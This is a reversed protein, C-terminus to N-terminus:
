GTICFIKSAYILINKSPWVLYRNIGLWVPYSQLMCSYSRAWGYMVSKFYKHAHDQKVTHLM